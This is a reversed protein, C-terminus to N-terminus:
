RFSIPGSFTLEPFCNQDKLFSM